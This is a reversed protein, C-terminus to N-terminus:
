IRTVTEISVNEAIKIPSYSYYRVKWMQARISIIARAIDDPVDYPINFKEKLRVFVQAADMDAASQRAKAESSSE